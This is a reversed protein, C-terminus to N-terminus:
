AGHLRGGRVDGDGAARRRRHHEGHDRGDGSASVRSPLSTSIALLVSEDFDDTDQAAMFTITQSLEGDNFTVSLPVFYDTSSTTGQNTATLPIVVTREPDADLEVTVTVM